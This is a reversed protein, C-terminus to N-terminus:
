PLPLFPGPEKVEHSGAQSEDGALSPTIALLTLIGGVKKKKIQRTAGEM